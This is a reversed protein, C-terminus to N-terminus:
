LEDLKSSQENKMASLLKKIKHRRYDSSFGIYIFMLAPILAAIAQLLRKWLSTRAESQIPIFKTTEVLESLNVNESEAKEINYINTSGDKKPELEVYISTNGSIMKHLIIPKQSLPGSNTIQSIAITAYLAAALGLSLRRTWNMFKSKNQQDPMSLTQIKGLSAIRHTWEIKNLFERANNDTQTDDLLILAQFSFSEDRRFLGLNLEVKNKDKILSSINLNPAASTIKFELWANGEQITCTLPKEVMQKTIDISGNNALHGSILVINKDIPSEKYSVALNPIKKAFDDLLAISKEKIFTLNGPYKSRRIVLYIGWIGFITSVTVGLVSLYDSLTM